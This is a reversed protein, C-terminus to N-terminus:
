AASRPGRSLKGILAFAELVSKPIRTPRHTAITVYVWETRARLIERSDSLRIVRTRRIASAPRIDEVSTTVVVEDGARCGQRYDVEHRKVIFTGGLGQYAERDFGLFDSHARAADQIWRVYSVNSVHGNEDEEDTGATHIWDFACYAPITPDLASPGTWTGHRVTNTHLENMANM